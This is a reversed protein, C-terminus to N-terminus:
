ANSPGPEALQGYETVVLVELMTATRRVDGSITILADPVFEQDGALQDLGESV